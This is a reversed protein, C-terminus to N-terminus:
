SSSDDTAKPRSADSLEEFLDDYDFYRCVLMALTGLVVALRSTVFVDVVQAPALLLFPRENHYFRPL